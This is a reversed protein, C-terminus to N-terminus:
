TNIADIQASHLQQASCSDFSLLPSQFLDSVRLSFSRRKPIQTHKLENPFLTLKWNEPTPLPACTHLTKQNSVHTQHLNQSLPVDDPRGSRFSIVVYKLLTPFRRM